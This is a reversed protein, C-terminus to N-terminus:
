KAAPQERQLEGKTKAQKTPPPEPPLDAFPDQQEVVPVPPPPKKYTLKFLLFAFAVVSLVILLGFVGGKSQKPRTARRGDADTREERAM